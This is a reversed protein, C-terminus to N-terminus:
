GFFGSLRGRARNRASQRGSFRSPKGCFFDPNIQIVCRMNWKEFRDDPFKLPTAVAHNQRRAVSEL